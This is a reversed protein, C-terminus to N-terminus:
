QEGLVKAMRWHEEGAAGESKIVSVVNVPSQAAASSLHVLSSILATTFSVLKTM